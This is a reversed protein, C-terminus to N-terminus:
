ALRRRLACGAALLMLVMAAALGAPSLSPVPPGLVLFLKDFQGFGTHLTGSQSLSSRRALGGAVLNLNGGGLASRADSGMLTFRDDGGTGTKQQVLVTGTTHPFGWSTTSQGVDTRSPAMTPVIGPLRWKVGSPMTWTNGFLTTVIPGPNGLVRMLTVMTPATVYARPLYRTIRTPVDNAGGGPALKRLTAGSGWLVPHALWFPIVNFVISVSGGFRLGLQMSGGFQNPGAAYVVRGHRGQTMPDGGTMTALASGETCAPDLPCWSFSGPGGNAMFSATAYPADVQLMTTIQPINGGSFGLVARHDRQFFRKEIRLTGPTMSGAFGSTTVAGIGRIVQALSSMGGMATLTPYFPAETFSGMSAHTRQTGGASGGFQLPLFAQGKRVLWTASMQFKAAGAPSALALALLSATAATVVWGLHHERKM